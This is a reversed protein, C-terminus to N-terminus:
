HGMWTLPREGERSVATRQGGPASTGVCKPQADGHGASPPGDAPGGDGAPQGARRRRAGQEDQCWVESDGAAAAAWLGRARPRQWRIISDQSGGQSTGHIKM